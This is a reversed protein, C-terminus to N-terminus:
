IAAVISRRVARPNETMMSHGTDALETVQGHGLAAALARGGKPPTMKDGLGIVVTAPCAVSAAAMLANDYAACAHLDTALVGPTSNEVLARAGGLMWLGPTPNPGVHAPQAHGWAAMLAAAHPLDASASALLDPHVPMSTATGLLCISRVLDPHRSALELAIFSGMSHGVVHVAGLGVADIFRAIWGAMSAVDGLATGNSKGHGPLDVAVARFGRHALYRTQLQWVTSDMGAGHILLVVPDTGRLAVGGTSAHAAMGDVLAIM